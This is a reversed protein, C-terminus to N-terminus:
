VVIKRLELERTNLTIYGYLVATIPPLRLGVACSLRVQLMQRSPPVVMEFYDIPLRLLTSANLSIREFKISIVCVREM